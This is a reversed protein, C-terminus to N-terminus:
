SLSQAVEELLDLATRLGSEMGSQLHMDRSEPADHAVLLTAFTRGDRAEFTLTNLAPHDPFPAFTETSVLRHPREIERYEGYFEVAEGTSAAEMAFRYGGGVRLDIECVSMTGRGAHWWRRVLDPETWARFVLEPAADFTRTILIERDGRPTVTTTESMIM